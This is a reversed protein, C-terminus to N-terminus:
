TDRVNKQNLLDDFFREKEAQSIAAEIAERTVEPVVILNKEIIGKKGIRIEEELDQALRVPDYFTLEIQAGSSLTVIVGTLWGKAPRELGDLDDWNIPYEINM